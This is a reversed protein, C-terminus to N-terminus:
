LTRSISADTVYLVDDPRLRRIPRRAPTTNVREAAPSGYDHIALLPGPTPMTMSDFALNEPSAAVWEVASAVMLQNHEDAFSKAEAGALAIEAPMGPGDHSGYMLAFSPAVPLLIAGAHAFERGGELVVFEDSATKPTGGGPEQARIPLVPEDGVILLPHDLRVLAAPRHRLEVEAREALDGFMKLHENPHPVFDTNQVDEVSIKDQNLLKVAYDTLIEISRRTRMGRVAQMGVFADLVAREQPTFARPRAFARCDLHQRLIAAAAGEVESLLAELRADLVSTATVGTYFDRVALDGVSRLSAKGDARSRVHLQGNASGFRALLFRPVIHHRAGVSAQPDLNDLWERALRDAERDSLNPHLLNTVSRMIATGVSLVAAGANVRENAPSHCM